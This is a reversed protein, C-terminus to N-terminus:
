APAAAGVRAEACLAVFREAVRDWGFRERVYRAAAAAMAAARDRDRLLWVCARALAPPDDGLLLHLGDRLPLGEAGISTSAVPCEMALAEYIKLRTGGGVRLPVVSAAARALWPRVDPVRGTFTVGRSGAALAQLEPGPDRGVVTLRAEPVERRVLPLVERVFFGIGDANPMWDMSGTFVLHGPERAVSPDPRFYEVDVGTPVWRPDAVGYERRFHEADEASVAIVRDFRRCARAEFARMRGYQLGFYARRVGRAVEVHRRWIQAEVNHQFLVSPCPLPGAPLNVAPTLFDCVLVDPVARALEARLRAAFAPSRYRAIAYPLPSALNALLAAFFGPSHRAPPRFPVTVPEACYESARAAADPAATGDDLTLYTVHHERAIARLMQYTRIRGGKDVPHLLETKLWLLRM